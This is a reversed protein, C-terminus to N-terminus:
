SKRGHLITQTAMDELSDFQNINPLMQSQERVLDKIWMKGYLINQSDLFKRITHSFGQYFEDKKCLINLFIIEEPDYYIQGFKPDFYCKSKGDLIDNITMDFCNTLSSPNEVLFTYFFVPSIDYKRQLQKTIHQGVKLGHFLQILWGIITCKKWEEISMTNTGVIVEEFETTWNESKIAGHTELLPIKRTVLGFKERYEQSDLKTNPLIQCHYIFITNHRITQLTKELMTLFSSYTEGPLGLIIETYTPIGSDIYRQQLDNFTEQSINKRGINELVKPTSSQISLTVTKALSADSLIKASKFISETSNKGYCVRFKDPYGYQHKVGAYIKSTEVDREFMGFNSDACFVYDIQHHGIWEAEDQVYQSSHYRMKKSLNKQGWFCFACQFPCGRSTEVIPQFNLSPNKKILPEFLGTTYPSPYQDLHRSVEQRQVIIHSKPRETLNKILIDAFIEEGTGYVGIDIFPHQDFFKKGDQPVNPGGFIILCSPFKKKVTRAVNLSLQYNWISVSFCVVDPSDYQQLINEVNDHQFLFPMFEYNERIISFTQAYARLLGSSYPLYIANGIQINYENLYVRKM